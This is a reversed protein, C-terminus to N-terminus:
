LMLRNASKPETTLPSSLTLRKVNSFSLVMELPQQKYLIQQLPEGELGLAWLGEPRVPDCFTFYIVRAGRELFPALDRGRVLTFHDLGALPSGPLRRKSKAM